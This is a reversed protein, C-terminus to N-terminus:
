PAERGRNSRLATKGLIGGNGGPARGSAREEELLRAAQYKLRRNAERVTAVPCGLQEAQAAPHEYGAYALDLVELALVDGKLRDRLAGVLSSLRAFTEHRELAEDAPLAGAAPAVEDVLASGVVERRHQASRVRNIHLGNMVSGLHALFTKGGDPDWPSADSDFVRSLAEQVLDDADAKSRTKRMAYQIAQLRVGPREFEELARKSWPTDLNFV